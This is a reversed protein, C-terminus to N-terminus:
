KVIISILWKVIEHNSKHAGHGFFHIFNNRGDCFFVPTKDPFVLLFGTSGQFGLLYFLDERETVLFPHELDEKLQAMRKKHNM